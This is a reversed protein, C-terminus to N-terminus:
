LKLFKSSYQLQNNINMEIFYYKNAPLGGIKMKILKDVKTSQVLVLKGATTYIKIDATNTENEQYLRDDLDLSVFDSAPNPFISIINQISTSVKRNEISLTTNTKSALPNTTLNITYDEVEGYTFSGCPSSNANWQMTVRMGTAGISASAPINATGTVTGTGSGSFVEEGADDFDGDRNLDIWIKWNEPYSSNPYGATLSVSVSSGPAVNGSISTFDGYGGNNGSTNNIQGFTVNEIFEYNSNTANASCYTPLGCANNADNPCSDCADPNGDSDSDITDDGNSCIDNADCVGDGDADQFTGGVCNCNADYIEGSTCV